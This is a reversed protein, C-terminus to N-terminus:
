RMGIVDVTPITARLPQPRHPVRHLCRRLSRRPPRRHHHVRLFPPRRPPINWFSRLGGGSTLFRSTTPMQTALRGLDATPATPVQAFTHSVPPSRNWFLFCCAHSLAPAHSFAHAHPAHLAQTRNKVDSVLGVVVSNEIHHSTEETKAFAMGAKGQGLFTGRCTGQFAATLAYRETPWSAHRVYRIQASRVLAALLCRGGQIRM